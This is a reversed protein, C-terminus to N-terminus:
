EKAKEIMTAAEVAAKINRKLEAMEPSANKYYQIAGRDKTRLLIMNTPYFYHGFVDKSRSSEISNEPSYKIHIRTFVVNNEYERATSKALREMKPRQRKCAPCDDRTISVVYVKGFRPALFDFASKNTKSIAKEVDAFEINRVTM